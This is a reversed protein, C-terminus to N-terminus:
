LWSLLVFNILTGSTACSTLSVTNDRRHCPNLGWGLMTPQPDLTAVATAQIWDRARSSWKSHTRGFFFKLKFGLETGLNCILSPVCVFNQLQTRECIFFVQLGLSQSRVTIFKSRFHEYRWNWLKHFYVIVYWGLYSRYQECSFFISINLSFFTYIGLPTIYWIYIYIYVYM